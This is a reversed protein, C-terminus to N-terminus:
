NLYRDIVLHLASMTGKRHMLTRIVLGYEINEIFDDPRPDILLFLTNELTQEVTNEKRSVGDVLHNALDLVIKDRLPSDDYVIDKIVKNCKIFKISPNEYISKSLVYTTDSVVMRTIVDDTSKLFRNNSIKSDIDNISRVLIRLSYSLSNQIPDIENIERRTPILLCYIHDSFTVKKVGDKTM